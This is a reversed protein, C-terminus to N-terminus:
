SKKERYDAHCAKCAGGLSKAGAKIAEMDGATVTRPFKAAEAQFAKMKNAFDTPNAWVAPLTLSKPRVEKGSGKPFWSPAQASLKQIRAADAALKAKSPSGRGLEDNVRKFADGMQEFNEHRLHATQASTAAVAAGATALGGALALAMCLRPLGPVM